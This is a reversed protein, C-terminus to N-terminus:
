LRVGLGAEIAYGSLSANTKNNANDVADYAVGVRLAARRLIAVDLGAMVSGTPSVQSKYQFTMPDNSSIYVASLRVGAYPNLLQHKAFAHWTVLAGFGLMSLASGGGDQSAGMYTLAVGYDVHAARPLGYGTTLALEHGVLPGADAGFLGGYRTWVRSGNPSYFRVVYGLSFPGGDGPEARPMEVRLGGQLLFGGNKAEGSTAADALLQFRWGADVFVGVGRYAVAGGVHPTLM